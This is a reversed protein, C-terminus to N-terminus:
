HQPMTGEYMFKLLEDVSHRPRSIDETVNIDNDENDGDDLEKKTHFGKFEYNKRQDVTANVAWDTLDEDDKLLIDTSKKKSEEVWETVEPLPKKRLLTTM